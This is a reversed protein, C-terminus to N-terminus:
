QCLNLSLVGSRLDLTNCSCLGARHNLYMGIQVYLSQISLLLLSVHYYCLTTALHLIRPPTDTDALYYLVHFVICSPRSLYASPFSLLTVAGSRSQRECKVSCCILRTISLTLTILWKFASHCIVNLVQMLM